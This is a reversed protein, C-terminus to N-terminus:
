TSMPRFLFIGVDSGALWAFCLHRKDFHILMKGRYFLGNQKVMSCDKSSNRITDHNEVRKARWVQSSTMGYPILWHSDLHSNM